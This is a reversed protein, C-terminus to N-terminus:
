MKEANFFKSKDFRNSEGWFLCHGTLLLTPMKLPKEM